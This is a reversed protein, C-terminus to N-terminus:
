AEVASAGFSINVAELSKELFLLIVADNHGEVNLICEVGSRADFHCFGEKVCRACM